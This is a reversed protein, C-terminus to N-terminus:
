LFLCQLAITTRNQETTKNRRLHDCTFLGLSPSLEIVVFPDGVEKVQVVLRILECHICSSISVYGMKHIM